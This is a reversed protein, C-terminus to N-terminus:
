IYSTTSKQCVLIGNHALHYSLPSVAIDGSIYKASVNENHTLRYVLSSLSHYRHINVINLNEAQLAKIIYKESYLWLRHTQENYYYDKQFSSQHHFKTFLFEASDSREFELVLWGCVKLTRSLEAIALTADCYNIVSGVCISIDFFENPCPIKEISSVIPHASHSLTNEAIDCDYFEGNLNYTTGGAGANLIKMSSSCKDSLLNEVKHKLYLKTTTHWPDNEPWTNKSNNYLKRINETEEKYEM